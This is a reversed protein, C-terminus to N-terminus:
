QELRDIDQQLRAKCLWRVSNVLYECIDVLEDSTCDVTDLDQVAKRIIDDVLM